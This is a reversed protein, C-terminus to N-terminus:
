LFGIFKKGDATFRAGQGGPIRYELVDGFKAHRRTVVEVKPNTLINMLVEEGQANIQKATGKVRPFLSGERNGHKQLARGAFTLEARDIANGAAVLESISSTKSSNFFNRVGSVRGLSPSNGGEPAFYFAAFLFNFIATHNDAAMKEFLMMKRNPDTEKDIAQKNVGGNHVWDVTYQYILFSAISKLDRSITTGSTVLQGPTCYDTYSNYVSVEYSELVEPSSLDAEIKELYDGRWDWRTNPDFHRLIIESVKAFVENYSTQQLVALKSPNTEDLKLAEKQKGVFATTVSGVWVNGSNDIDFDLNGIKDKEELGDLDICSIPKNGAFQYPTYWPYSKFLPDVSLFRGLGPSYIRFGYDYTTTSFGDKDLEKGNFGYRYGSGGDFKRGPMLMGFPYYSRGEM